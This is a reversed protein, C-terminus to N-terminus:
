LLLVVPITCQSHLCPMRCGQAVHAPRWPRSAGRNCTRSCAASSVGSALEGPSVARPLVDTTLVKSTMRAVWVAGSVAGFVSVFPASEASLPLELASSARFGMFRALRLFDGALAMSDDWVGSSMTVLGSGRTRMRCVPPVSPMSGVIDYSACSLPTVRLGPVPPTYAPAVGGGRWRRGGGWRTQREEWGCTCAARRWQPRCSHGPVWRRAHVLAGVPMAASADPHSTVPLLAGARGARVAGGRMASSPVAACVCALTSAPCPPVDPRRGPVSSFLTSLMTGSRAAKALRSRLTTYLLSEELTPGASHFFSAFMSCVWRM